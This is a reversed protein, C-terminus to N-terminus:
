RRPSRRGDTPSSGGSSTDVDREIAGIAGKAALILLKRGNEGSHAWARLLLLFKEDSAAPMLLQWCEVGLGMALAELHDVTAGNTSREIRSVTSQDVELGHRKAAKAVDPQSLEKDARIAKINEAVLDRLPKTKHMSVSYGSEGHSTVKVAQTFM